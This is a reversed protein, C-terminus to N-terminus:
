KKRENQMKFFKKMIPKELARKIKFFLTTKDKIPPVIIARMGHWKGACVDTFIQDGVFATSKKEAGLLAMAKKTNKDLPKASRAYAVAGIQRNFRNIRDPSSNNSIFAFKIGNERLSSLWLIIKEDPDAQEYPALTNDIDLLLTNINNELLFSVTIDSYKEFYYDPLFYKLM